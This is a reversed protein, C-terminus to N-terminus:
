MQKFKDAYSRSVIPKFGSGVLELSLKGTIGRVIKEIMSVQVITSRHVRWFQNADLQEALVKIAMRILYEGDATIVKTYKDEAHFCVIDKVNVLHVDEGKLAKVWNLPENGTAGQLSQQLLALTDSLDQPESLLQLKDQLRLVMKDIRKPDIPKLVYDIAAHEFAEVAFEDYATIFVLLCSHQLKEAVELGSLAPMKIDLFAIDPKLEDLLALAENGNAAEAVIELDPWSDALEKKLHFRLLPEDDAIIATSM